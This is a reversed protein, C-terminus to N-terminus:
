GTVFSACIVGAKIGTTARGLYKAKVQDPSHPWSVNIWSFNGSGDPHIEKAKQETIAAVIATDYFDYKAPGSTIPKILWLKMPKM